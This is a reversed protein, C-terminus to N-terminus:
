FLELDEFNGIEMFQVLGKSLFSKIELYVQFDGFFQCFLGLWFEVRATSIKLEYDLQKNSRSYRLWDSSSM